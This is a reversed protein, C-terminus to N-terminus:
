LYIDRLKWGITQFAEETAKRRNTPSAVMGKFAENNWKTRLLILAM